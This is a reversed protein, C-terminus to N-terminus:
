SSMIEQETEYRVAIGHALINSAHKIETGGEKYLDRTTHRREINSVWVPFLLGGTGKGKNHIERM